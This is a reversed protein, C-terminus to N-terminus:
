DAIEDDLGPSVTRTGAPLQLQDPPKVILPTLSSPAPLVFEPVTIVLPLTLM